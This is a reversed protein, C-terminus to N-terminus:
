LFCVPDRPRSGRVPTDMGANSALVDFVPGKREDVAAEFRAIAVVDGGLAASLARTEEEGVDPHLQLTLVVQGGATRAWEGISSAALDPSIKDTLGLVGCFKQIEQNNNRFSQADGAQVALYSEAMLDGLTFAVRMRDPSLAPPTDRYM